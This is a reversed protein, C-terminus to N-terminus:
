PHGPNKCSGGPVLNVYAGRFRAGGAYFGLQIPSKTNTFGVFVGAHDGLGYFVLNTGSSEHGVSVPGTGGEYLSEFSVGSRSDYTALAYAGGHVSGTDIAAGRGVFVGGGCTEPNLAQIGTANLARGLQVSSMSCTVRGSSAADVVSQTQAAARGTRSLRESASIERRSGIAGHRDLPTGSRRRALTERQPGGTGGHLPVVRHPQHHGLKKAAVGERGASAGHTM